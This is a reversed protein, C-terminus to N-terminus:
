GEAEARAMLGAFDILSRSLRDLKAAVLTGARGAALEQRRPRHRPSQPDKASLGEDAM